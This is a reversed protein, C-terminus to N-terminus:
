PSGSQCTSAPRTSTRSRVSRCPRSTCFRWMSKPRMSGAAGGLDEDAARQHGVRELRGGQREELVVAAQAVLDGRDLCLDARLVPERELLGGVLEVVLAEGAGADGGHLIELALPLLVDGGLRAPQAHLLLIQEARELFEVRLPEGVLHLEGVTREREVVGVLGAGLLVADREAQGIALRLEELGRQEVPEHGAVELLFDGQQEARERLGRADLELWQLRGRLNDCAVQLGVAAREGLIEGVMERALVADGNGGGIEADLFQGVVQAHADLHDVVVAFREGGAAFQGGHLGREGLVLLREHLLGVVGDGDGPALGAGLV